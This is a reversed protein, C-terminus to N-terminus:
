RHDSKREAVAATCSRKGCKSCRLRKVVDDLQADWGVLNAFTHPTAKRSHGCASCTLFMYYQGFADSLKVVKFSALAM